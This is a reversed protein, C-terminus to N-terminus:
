ALDKGNYALRVHQGEGTGYSLRDDADWSLGPIAIRQSPTITSM